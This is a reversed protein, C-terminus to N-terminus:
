TSTNGLRCLPVTNILLLWSVADEEEVKEIMVLVAEGEEEKEQRTAITLVILVFIIGVALIVHADMWELNNEMQVQSLLVRQPLPLLLM